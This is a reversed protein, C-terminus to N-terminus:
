RNPRRALDRAGPLPLAPLEPDWCVVGGLDRHCFGDPTQACRVGNLGVKCHYGCAVKGHGERCEPPPLGAGSAYVLPLPPDWCTVGGYFARCVGAPSQACAVQGLGSACHYGCAVRAYDSKCEAPPLPGPWVALLLPSPDWCTVRGTEATCRGEPTQACAVRNSSDQRCDYGCVETDGVRVCSPRSQALLLAALIAPLSM